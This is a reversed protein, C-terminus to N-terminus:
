TTILVILLIPLAIVLVPLLLNLLSKGFTFKQAEAVGIVMLIISWMALAVQIFSCGYFIVQEVIGYSDLNLYSQFYENGFTAIQIAVMVLSLIYPINAYALVRLIDSTQAKGNIWGGSWSILASYIYSSIWGLLGGFILAMGLVAGLSMTDGSNNSVAREIASSVGGLVLLAKLHYEYRYKHIFRFAKKPDMVVTQVVKDAEILDPDAEFETFHEM